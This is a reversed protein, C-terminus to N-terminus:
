NDADTHSPLCQGPKLIDGAELAAADPMTLMAQLDASSEIAGSKARARKLLLAHRFESEAQPSLVSHKLRSRAELDPWRLHPM